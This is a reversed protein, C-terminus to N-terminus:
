RTNRLLLEVGLTFRGSTIMSSIEDSAVKISPNSPISITSGPLKQRRPRLTPKRRSTAIRSLNIQEKEAFEKAVQGANHGAIGHDRAVKTWNIPKEDPWTSLTEKLQDRDWTVKSFTPSHKRKKTAPQLPSCFSQAMQKRHYKRKSECETLMSIAAKEAFQENVAMTVQKKVEAVEKQKLQESSTSVAVADNFSTGAEHQYVRNLETLVGSTFKKVGQRHLAATDLTVSPKHHFMPKLPFSRQHDLHLEFYQVCNSVSHKEREAM